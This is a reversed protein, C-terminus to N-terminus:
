PDPLGLAARTAELENIEVRQYRATREALDRVYRDAAAEAAAAGMEVAGEHHIKMLDIFLADVDRGRADALEEIEDDSAMGPMSATPMGHGMWAMAEGDDPRERPQGWRQLYAEMLGIEYSQAQLIERAFHHVRPEVGGGIQYQSMVLAQEHHAIMDWLFGVDVSSPGPVAARAERTGAAFGMSGALFVLAIALAIRQASSM